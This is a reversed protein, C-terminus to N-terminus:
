YRWRKKITRILRFQDDKWEYYFKGQNQSDGIGFTDGEVVLLRSDRRFELQEGEQSIHRIVTLVQPNFFVLGTKFDVIAFSICDSGCGWTVLTYHGSFNPGEKAGERIMTKFLRARPTLIKPPPPKGSFRDIVPFDQFRPSRKGQASAAVVLLIALTKLISKM